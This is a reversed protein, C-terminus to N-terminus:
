PHAAPCCTLGVKELGSDRYSIGRDILRSRQHHMLRGTLNLSAASGGGPQM